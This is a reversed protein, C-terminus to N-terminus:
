FDLGAERAGAAVEAVRGCYVYGGRDFVVNKYGAQIAREAVAKGVIKSAGKKDAEGISARLDSELTSASVLTVGKSDDVLQAYIHKLSRYVCLRPREPTGSVKKRVRAHRIRRIENKDQRKFM